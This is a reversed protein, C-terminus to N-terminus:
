LSDPNIRGQPAKLSYRIHAIISRGGYIVRAWKDRIAISWSRILRGREAECATFCRTKDCQLLSTCYRGTVASPAASCAVVPLLRHAYM